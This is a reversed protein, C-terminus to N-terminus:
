LISLLKSTVSNIFIKNLLLEDVSPYNLINYDNYILNRFYENDLNYMSAQLFDEICKSKNMCYDHGDEAGVM